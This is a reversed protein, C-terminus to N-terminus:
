ALLALDLPDPARTNSACGLKRAGRKSQAACRARLTAFPRRIRSAKQRKCLKAERLLCVGVGHVKSVQKQRLLLFHPRQRGCLGVCVVWGSFSILQRACWGVFGVSRSKKGTM